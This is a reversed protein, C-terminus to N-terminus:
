EATATKGALVRVRDVVRRARAGSDPVVWIAYDGPPVVMEARTDGATQVVVHKKSEPGDDLHPTVLLSGRPQGDGRFNIVGLHDNLKVENAGDKPKWNAVAKIPKGDRPVFWIDFPGNVPLKAEDKLSAVTAIATHKATGPGPEGAKTLIISKVPPLFYMPSSLRVTREAAVTTSALLFLVVIPRM